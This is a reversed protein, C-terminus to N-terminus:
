QQGRHARRGERRSGQGADGSPQVRDRGHRGSGQAAAPEDMARLLSGGSLTALIKGRRDLVSIYVAGGGAGAGGGARAEGGKM